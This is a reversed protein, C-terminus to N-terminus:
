EARTASIPDVRAARWAPLLSGAMTMVAALAIAGGFVAPNAPEVGFLMAQMTRGAVYALVAGIAIGIAAMMVSRGLVMGVIDRGNAGLAIRVGIERSRARVTYALLGHIGIAALLFAATAFAGLVRLQVVRPATELAVVDDLTRVSTIPLQADAKRIIARVAPILSTARISTRVLLDQPAYFGIQGDRQQAAAIYVQPENDTRELGRFRVDGVVGVITRVNFAFGFQRGIPDQGPYYQDAFSRSVVAVAPTELTDNANIDRGHLVPIGLTKFYDPTVMRLSARRVDPPAAFGGANTPDPTTTLVEWMGGRMTFPTFSVYAASIVGPLARTETLVQDYFQQRAASRAYKPQPLMTKLTLVDSSKFGPDIAQVQLLAQVLLGTLVLLVVSAVIEAVVLASRVRETDRSIGGRAGEKLASGDARRCIRLAPLVGFGVGTSLAVFAAVGLMRLDVPPVEAIPLATPALRVVLPAAAIALLIGLVGGAGALLLSDTLMQRVLRDVSAGIATRVAFETRRALARAMMLNALNTCAILLLCLSAGVMAWLMMRAQWAVDDRWRQVNVSKGAQEKPFQQAIQDAITRMESRAQEFSVGPKLRGMVQLYNNNRRTDSGAPNLRFARWFDADRRPFHFDPPMVGIVTLTREDLTLTRGLVNPDAAFRTRWMRDSIVIVDSTGTVDAEAITRGIAAQRGLLKFVGGAVRSGRLREPEGTGVLSATDDIFAEIGEFSTAMRKWDLYNPPAPEIRPYGQAAHNETLRALRDPDPFPLPRLLVHDAITFTSTTAGIGLAAVAIATISFGPARRLSRLAYGADQKLIDLHVGFANAATDMVVRSLLAVRAAGSLERWQRNFDKLMEAGYEARFSKPYLRLLARYISM